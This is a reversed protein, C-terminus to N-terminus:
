SIPFRLSTILIESNEDYAQSFTGGNAEVTRKVLWLGLGYAGRRSSLLPKDQWEQPEVPESKNERLEFFAYAEKVFSSAKLGDGGFVQANRFLEAFVKSLSMPDVEINEEGLTESWEATVPKEMTMPIDRWILFLDRALIPIRTVRPDAIKSSLEKMENAITHIQTRLRKLSDKAEDDGTMVESLYAAELDLGSLNNRVDHTLLRIFSAVHPLPICIDSSM